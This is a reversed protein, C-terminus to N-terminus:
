HRPLAYMGRKSKVIAGKKLLYHITAPLVGLNILVSWSSEGNERLHDLVLTTLFGWPKRKSFGVSSRTCKGAPAEGGGALMSIVREVPENEFHIVTIM